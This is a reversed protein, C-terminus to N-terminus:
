RTAIPFFYNITACENEITYRAIDGLHKRCISSYRPRQFVKRFSAVNLVAMKTWRSQDRYVENVKEQCQIYSAYDAFVFYPDHRFLSETIPHFLQPSGPSFYGGHIQDIM